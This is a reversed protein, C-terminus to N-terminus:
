GDVWLDVNILGYTYGLESTLEETPVVVYEGAPLDYYFENLNFNLDNFEQATIASNLSGHIIEFRDDATFTFTDTSVVEWATSANPDAQDSIRRVNEYTGKYKMGVNLKSLLIAVTASSFVFLSSPNKLAEYESKPTPIAQTNTAETSAIEGDTGDLAIPSSFVTTSNEPDYTTGESGTTVLTKKCAGTEDRAYNWTRVLPGGSLYAATSVETAYFAFDETDFSQTGCPQIVKNVQLGWIDIDPCGCLHLYKTEDLRTCCSFM